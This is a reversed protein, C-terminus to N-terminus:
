MSGISTAGEADWESRETAFFDGGYVHRRYEGSSPSRM